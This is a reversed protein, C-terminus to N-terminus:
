ELPAWLITLMKAQHDAEHDKPDCAYVDGPPGRPKVGSSRIKQMFVGWGKESIECYPGQYVYWVMRGRLHMSEPLEGVQVPGNAIADFRAHLAECSAMDSGSRFGGEPFLGETRV